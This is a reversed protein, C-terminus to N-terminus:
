TYKEYQREKLCGCSKRGGSMVSYKYAEIETRCLECRFLWNDGERKELATLYGFTKGTIDKARSAKTAGPLDGADRVMGGRYDIGFDPSSDDTIRVEGQRLAQYAQMDQADGEIKGCNACVKGCRSPDDNPGFDELRPNWCCVGGEQPRNDPLQAWEGAIEIKVM